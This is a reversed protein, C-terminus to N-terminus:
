TLFIRAGVDEIEVYIRYDSLPKVSKIDRYM